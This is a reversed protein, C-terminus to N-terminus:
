GRYGKEPEDFMKKTDRTRLEVLALDAYTAALSVIKTADPPYKWRAIEGTLAASFFKCWQTRNDQM